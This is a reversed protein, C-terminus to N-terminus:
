CKRLASSERVEQLSLLKAIGVEETSPPSRGRDCEEVVRATSADKGINISDHLLNHVM